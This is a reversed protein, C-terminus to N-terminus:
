PAWSRVPQAQRPSVTTTIVRARRSASDLQRRAEEAMVRTQDPFPLMEPDNFLKALRDHALVGYGQQEYNVAQQLHELADRLMRVAETRNINLHIPKEAVGAPDTTEGHELEGAAHAFWALLGPILDVPETIVDLALAKINWSCLAPTGKGRNWHKLLRVVRAYAIDTKKLAVLVLETHKEPDSRDWSAHRPIFLGAEDVNDVAVIVDATFDERGTEGFRILISRKRGVLEVRLNPYTPRLREKIAAAAREQLAGPGLKGPGYLGEPDLVVVGLDVDVLPDLADGHAVSGNTYTYGGPFEGRLVVAVQEQRDRATDIEERSVQIRALADALIGELNYAVDPVRAASM